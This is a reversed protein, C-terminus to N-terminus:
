LHRDLWRHNYLEPFLEQGPLAFQILPLVGEQGSLMAYHLGPVSKPPRMHFTVSSVVSSSDDFLVVV